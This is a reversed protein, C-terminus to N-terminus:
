FGKRTERGDQDSLKCLLEMVLERCLALRCLWVLEGLVTRLDEEKTDNSEDVIESTSFFGNVM